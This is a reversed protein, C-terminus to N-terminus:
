IGNWVEVLCSPRYLIVVLEPLLLLPCEHNGALLDDIVHPLM